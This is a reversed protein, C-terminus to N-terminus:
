CVFSLGSVTNLLCQSSFFPSVSGEGLHLIDVVVDSTQVWGYGIHPLIQVLPPILLESVLPMTFIGFQANGVDTSIPTAMNLIM